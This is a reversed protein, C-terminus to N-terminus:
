GGMVAYVRDPHSYGELLVEKEYRMGINEAVRVSALNGPDILAILRSIKLEGFAYDRVARAAETAYGSGWSARRLRYGIMERSGREVVGYPGYGREPYWEEICVRLWGEVWARSRVGPGYRMVEADGFVQMLAGADNLALERLALRETELSVM